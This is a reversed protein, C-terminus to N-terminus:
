TIFFSSIFNSCKEYEKGEEEDEEGEDEEGEESVLLVEEELPSYSCTDSFTVQQNYPFHKTMDM